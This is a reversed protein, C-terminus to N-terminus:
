KPKGLGSEDGDDVGADLGGTQGFDRAWNNNELIQLDLNSGIITTEPGRGIATQVCLSPLRTELVPLQQIPPSVGGRGKSRCVFLELKLRVCFFTLMEVQIVTYVKRWEM